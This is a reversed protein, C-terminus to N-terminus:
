ILSSMSMEQIEKRCTKVLNYVLFNKEHVVLHESYSKLFLLPWQIKLWTNKQIVQFIEILKTQKLLVKRSLLFDNNYDQVDINKNTKSYQPTTTRYWM